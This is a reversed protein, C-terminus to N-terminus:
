SEGEVRIKGKLEITILWIARANFVAKSNAFMHNTPPFNIGSLIQKDAM